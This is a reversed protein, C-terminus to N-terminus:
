KPKIGKLDRKILQYYRYALENQLAIQETTARGKSVLPPERKVEPLTSHDSRMSVIRGDIKKLTFNIM